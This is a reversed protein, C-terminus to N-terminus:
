ARATESKNWFRPKSLPSSKRNWILWELMQAREPHLHPVLQPWYHTLTGISLKSGDFGYNIHQALEWIIRDANTPFRTIDTNWNKM